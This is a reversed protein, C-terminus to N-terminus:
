GESRGSQRSVPLVFWFCAGRPEVSEVGVSGGMAEILHKVIALGLGTGGHDRSRGKDVRYFREFIRARHEDPIGSGNDRVEIRVSGDQIIQKLTVTTGDANYKIANEILNTLVQEIAKADGRVMMEDEQSDIVIRAKKAEAKDELVKVAEVFCDEIFVARMVLKYRGAEILSLDLLDTIIRSLREANRHLAEVFGHAKDPKELAGDLLTEANAQIVAVPTRLEHSVNAVFDRRITELRRMETIDHMVVVTGGTATIRSARAAVLRRTGNKVEFEADVVEAGKKQALQILDPFKLADVPEGVMETSLGLIRECATNLLVIEKKNDVALVADDMSELVAAFRGREMALSAMATELQESLRRVSHTLLGVEDERPRKPEEDPDTLSKVYVVLRRLANSLLWTAVVSMLLATLLGVLGAVGLLMHIKSLLQQEIALPVAVRLVGTGAPGPYRLAVYLMSIKLTKSERRTIGHGEALALRVEPRDKHNELRELRTLDLSSDAIVRGRPDILSIRTGSAKGINVLLANYAEDPEQPAKPLLKLLMEARVQLDSERHSRNWNELINKLIYAGFGGVVALVLFSVLFLKGRIGIRKTM